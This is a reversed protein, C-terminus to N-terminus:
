RKTSHVVFEDGFYGKFYKLLDPNEEFFKSLSMPKFRRELCRKVQSNIFSRYRAPDKGSQYIITTMREEAEARPLKAVTIYYPALIKYILRHRGDGLKDANAELWEVFRAHEGGNGKSLFSTVLRKEPRKASLRIFSYLLLNADGIRVAHMCKGVESRSLIEELSMNLDVVVAKRHTVTHHSHPIRVMREGDYVSPDLTELVFNARLAAVFNKVGIPELPACWNPFLYHLNFGRGGTFVVIPKAEFLNKLYNAVVKAELYAKKLDESDFDFYLRSFGTKVAVDEEEEVIKDLLKVKTSYRPATAEKAAKNYVMVEVEDEGRLGLFNELCKL